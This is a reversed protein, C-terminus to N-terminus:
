LRAGTAEVKGEVWVQQFGCLITSEVERAEIRLKRKRIPNLTLKRGNSSAATVKIQGKTM